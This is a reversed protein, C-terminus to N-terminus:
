PKAKNPDSVLTLDVAESEVLTEYLAAAAWRNGIPSWHSDTPFALADLRNLDSPCHPLLSLYETKIEGLDISYKQRHCEYPTALFILKFTAGRSTALHKVESFISDATEIIERHARRRLLSKYLRGISFNFTTNALLTDLFFNCHQKLSVYNVEGGVIRPFVATDSKKLRMLCPVSRGPLGRGLDQSVPSFVVLDGPNIEDIFETLRLYMLEIGYGGVGYNQVNFKNRIKKALLNLATDDNNVGYGFTFSDGFFHITRSISPNQDIKKRGNEDIYYKVDYNGRSKHIGVANPVPSYLSVPNPQLYRSKESGLFEDGVTMRAYVYAVEGILLAPIVGALSVALLNSLIKTKRRVYLISILLITAACLDILGAYIATSRSDTVFSVVLPNISVLLSLSVIISYIAIKNM